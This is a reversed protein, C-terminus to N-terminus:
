EEYVIKNKVTKSAKDKEIKQKAEEITHCRFISLKSWIYHVYIINGTTMEPKGIEPHYTFRGDAHKTEIIRYKDNM